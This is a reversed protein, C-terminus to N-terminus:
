QKTLPKNSKPKSTKAKSKYTPVAVKKVVDEVVDNELIESINGNEDVLSLTVPSTGFKKHRKVVTQKVGNMTFKDGINYM